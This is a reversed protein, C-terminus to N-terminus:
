WNRQAKRKDQEEKLTGTHEREESYLRYKTVRVRRM